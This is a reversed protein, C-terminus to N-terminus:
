LHKQPRSASRARVGSCMLLVDGDTCRYKRGDMYVCEYGAQKSPRFVKPPVSCGPIGGLPQKRQSSKRPMNCSRDSEIPEATVHLKFPVRSTADHCVAFDCSEGLGAESAVNSTQASGPAQLREESVSVVVGSRATGTVGMCISSSELLCVICHINLLHGYGAEAAKLSAETAALRDQCSGWQVATSCMQTRNARISLFGHLRILMRRFRRPSHLWTASKEALAGKATRLEQRQIKPLPPRQLSYCCIRSNCTAHRPTPCDFSVNLQVPM